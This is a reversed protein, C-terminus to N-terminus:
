GVYRFCVLSVEVPIVPHRCPIRRNRHEFILKGSFRQPTWHGESILQGNKPFHNWPGRPTRDKRHLRLCCLHHLWRWWWGGFGTRNEKWAPGDKLLQMKLPGPWPLLRLRRGHWWPATVLDRAEAICEFSRLAVSSTGSKWIGRKNQRSADSGLLDWVEPGFHLNRLGNQPSGQTLNRSRM